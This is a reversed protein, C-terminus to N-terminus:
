EREDHTRVEIGHRALTLIVTQVTTRLGHMNKAQRRLEYRLGAYIAGCLAMVVIVSIGLIQWADPSM